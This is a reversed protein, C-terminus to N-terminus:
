AAAALVKNDQPGNDRFHWKKAHGSHALRSFLQICNIGCKLIVTVWKLKRFALVRLIERSVTNNILIITNYIYPLINKIPKYEL